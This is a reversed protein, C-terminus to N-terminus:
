CQLLLIWLNLTTLLLFLWKPGDREHVLEIWNADGHLLKM